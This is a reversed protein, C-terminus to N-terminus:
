CSHKRSAHRRSSGREFHLQSVSPRSCLWCCQLLHSAPTKRRPLRDHTDQIVCQKLEAACYLWSNNCEVSAADVQWTNVQEFGQTLTVDVFTHGLTARRVTRLAAHGAPMCCEQGVSIQVQQGRPMNLRAAFASFQVRQGALASQRPPSASNGKAPKQREEGKDCWTCAHGIGSLQPLSPHLSPCM